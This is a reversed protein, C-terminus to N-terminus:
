KLLHAELGARCGLVALSHDCPSIVRKRKTAVETRLWKGALSGAHLLGM